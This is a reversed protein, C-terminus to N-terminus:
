QSAHERSRVLPLLRQAIVLYIGAAWSAIWVAPSTPWAGGIMVVVGAVAVLGPGLLSSPGITEHDGFCGCAVADGRRLVMAIAGAFLVASGVALAGGVAVSTNSGIALGGGIMLAVICETAIVLGATGRAPLWPAIDTVTAAFM